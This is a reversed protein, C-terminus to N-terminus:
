EAHLELRVADHPVLFLNDTRYAVSAEGANVASHRSKMDAPCLSLVRQAQIEARDQSPYPHAEWALGRGM